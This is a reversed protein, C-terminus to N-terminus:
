PRDDKPWNHHPFTLVAAFMVPKPKLNSLELIEQMKEGIIIPKRMQNKLDSM